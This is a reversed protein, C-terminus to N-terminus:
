LSLIISKKSFLKTCFNYLSFLRCNQLINHVPPVAHVFRARSKTRQNANPQRVQRAPALPCARDSPANIGSAFCCMRCVRVYAFTSGAEGASFSICPRGCTHVSAPASLRFRWSRDLLAPARRRRAAARPDTRAPPGLPRRRSHAPCLISTCPAPTVHQRNNSRRNLSTTATQGGYFATRVPGATPLTAAARKQSYAQPSKRREAHEDIYHETEMHSHPGRM